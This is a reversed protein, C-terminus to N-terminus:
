CHTQCPYFNKALNVSWVQVWLSNKFRIFKFSLTGQALSKSQCIFPMHFNSSRIIFMGLSGLWVFNVLLRLLLSVFSYVFLLCHYVPNRQNSVWGQFLTGGLPYSFNILVWDGELDRGNRGKCNRFNSEITCRLMKNDDIARFM